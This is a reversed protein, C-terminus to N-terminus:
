RDAQYIKFLESLKMNNYKALDIALACVNHPEVVGMELCLYELLDRYKEQPPECGLYDDPERWAKLQVNNITFVHNPAWQNSGKCLRWGCDTWVNYIATDSSLIDCEDETLECVSYDKGKYTQRLPIHLRKFDKSIDGFTLIEIM